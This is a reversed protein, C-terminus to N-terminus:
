ILWVIRDEIKGKKAVGKAMKQLQVLIHVKEKFSLESLSKSRQKKELIISELIKNEVLTCKRLNSM